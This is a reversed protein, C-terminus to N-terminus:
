FDLRDDPGGIPPYTDVLAAILSADRGEGLSERAEIESYGARLMLFGVMYTLRAQEDEVLDLLRIGEGRMALYFKVPDSM